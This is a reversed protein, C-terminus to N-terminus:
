IELGIQDGQTVEWQALLYRVLLKSWFYNTIVGRSGGTGMSVNIPGNWISELLVINTNHSEQLFNLNKVSLAIFNISFFSIPWQPSISITLFLNSWQPSIMLFNLNQSYKRGNNLSLNLNKVSLAIVKHFSLVQLQENFLKALEAMKALDAM